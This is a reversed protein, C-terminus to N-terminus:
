PHLGRLLRAAIGRLTEKGYAHTGDAETLIALSVRTRGHVLLAVQHDVRGTGSGWGGKFYLHWRPPLHLRGIGWRQSRIVHGLLHMAYPRHRVPILHDIEFFYRAQDEADIQSNGWIGAVPVFHRMGARRALGRLRGTGVRGLVATAAANDSRRIMPDLLRRESASLPRRSVSRERLYAVLLMAKLVSASPYIRRAHFGWAHSRTRIAFSVIGHRNHAYGVAARIHPVWPRPHAHSRSAGAAPLAIALGIAIAAAITTLWATRM